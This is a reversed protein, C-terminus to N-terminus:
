RDRRCISSVNVIRGFKQRLMPRLAARCIHFAATLDIAIVADWDDDTLRMALNDRNIGANNVVIDVGGLATVTQEILAGAAHPDALDAGLAVATAHYESQLAAVLAEASEASASYGVAVSAGARALAIATARGIGRSAGTVLARRGELPRADTMRAVAAVDVGKAADISSVSITRVDPAIRRALGSLVSGPGVEILTDAGLDVLRRVCDIWRVPSTLQARLRERLADATHVDTADVNCVVPPHPDAIAVADLAPEFRAAASTMLPSHFAGSVNLPIARRAGRTLALKSAAAVGDTSGSIVLQGPANLNAVVVIEGTERQTEACVDIGADVDIGILACMTGDRM